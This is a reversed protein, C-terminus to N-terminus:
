GVRYGARELARRRVLHQERWAIVLGAGIILPAGQLVSISPSDSFVLYGLVATWLLSGYDITMITAVSAYRLSATLLIQGVAGALSLGGIVAWTEAGHARAVFLQMVGLPVISTLSFWFVIAGPTETRNLRRLQIVTCSTLLAGSLAVVIGTGNISDQGPRLAVLIGVFGMVVAGWRYKGTPEALFLAALITAFIQTAFGFTTADAMPLLIMSTFNLAMAAIGLVMRLAHGAPQQTRISALDNSFWLWAIAVPLGTLQRWFLSEAVHVGRNGAIKVLLFMVGIVIVAGIRVAIGLMPRPEPATPAAAVPQEAPYPMAALWLEIFTARLDQVRKICAGNAASAPNDLLAKSM